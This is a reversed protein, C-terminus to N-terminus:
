INKIAIQKHMRCPIISHQFIPFLPSFLSIQIILFEKLGVMGGNWQEMMGEPAYARRAPPWNHAFRVLKYYLGNEVWKDEIKQSRKQNFISNM